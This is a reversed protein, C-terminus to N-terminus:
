VQEARRVKKGVRFPVVGTVRERLAAREEPTMAVLVQERVGPQLVAGPSLERAKSTLLSDEIIKGSLHYVDIPQLNRVNIGAAMCLQAWQHLSM